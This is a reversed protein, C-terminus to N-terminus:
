YKMIGFDSFKSGRVELGNMEKRIKRQKTM